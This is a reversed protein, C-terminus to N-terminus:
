RQHWKGRLQNGTLQHCPPGAALAKARAPIVNVLAGEGLQAKGDGCDRGVAGIHTAPPQQPFALLAFQCAHRREVNPFERRHSQAMHSELPAAVKQGIAVRTTAIVAGNHIDAM